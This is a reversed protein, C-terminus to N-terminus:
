SAPNAPNIPTPPIPPAPPVAKFGDLTYSETIVDGIGHDINFYQHHRIDIRLSGNAEDPMLIVPNEIDKIDEEFEM